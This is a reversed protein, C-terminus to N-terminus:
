ESGEDGRSLSNRNTLNKDTIVRGKHKELMQDFPNKLKMLEDTAVHTYIQTTELRAHGLLEQVYRLNVGDEIMHTAYSHRLMHPTVQRNIRARRVAIKLNGRVSSASYQLKGKGNFVFETPRYEDIYNQLMTVMHGGLMVIRDKRGKAKRIHITKRLFDLDSLRLDILEGVRLGCSYLLSLMARSKLNSCSSLIHLIETQNLVKPLQKARPPSEIKEIRIGDVENVEFLLKLASSFQRQTSAAYRGKILIENQYRRIDENTLASLEKNTSLLFRSALDTYIEITKEAKGRAALTQQLRHVAELQVDSLRQKRSKSVRRTPNARRKEPWSLWAVGKFEEILLQVNEARDDLHWGLEEQSWKAGIEKCKNVLIVDYEFLLFIKKSGRFPKRQITITRM